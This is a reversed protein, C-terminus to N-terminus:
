HRPPNLLTSSKFLDEAHAARVQKVGKPIPKEPKPEHAEPEANRARAAATARLDDDIMANATKIAGVNGALAQEVTKALLAARLADRARDRIKLERYFVKRLTPASCGVANAIRENGWGVALLVKVKNANEETWLFPPRGAGREPLPPWGFLCDQGLNEAM